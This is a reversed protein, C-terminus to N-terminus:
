IGVSNDQPAEAPVAMLCIRGSLGDLAGSVSLAATVGVLAAYQAHHGCAHVTGQEPHAAPHEPMYLADMEGLIAVTPGSRGTDLDAIFGPIDGFREIEYGLETFIDALATIIM